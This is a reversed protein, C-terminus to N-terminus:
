AGVAVRPGPKVPRKAVPVPEPAPQKAELFSPLKAEPDYAEWGHSKDFEAEVESIAVKTGHVAHKMYIHM